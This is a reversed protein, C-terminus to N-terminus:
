RSDGALMGLYMELQEVGTIEMSEESDHDEEMEESAGFSGEAAGGEAEEVQHASRYSWRRSAVPHGARASESHYEFLWGGVFSANQAPLSKLLETAVRTDPRSPDNIALHVLRYLEPQPHLLDDARPSTSSALNSTTPPMLSVYLDGWNEEGDLAAPSALPWFEVVHEKHEKNNLINRRTTTSAECRFNCAGLSMESSERLLALDPDYGVYSGEHDEFCTVSWGGRSGFRPELSECFAEYEAWLEDSIGQGVRLSQFAAKEEDVCRRARGYNNEAQELTAMLSRIEQKLHIVARKDEKLADELETLGRGPAQPCSLLSNLTTPRPSTAETAARATQKWRNVVDLSKSQIFAVPHGDPDNSEISGDDDTDFDTEVDSRKDNIEASVVSTSDDFDVFIGPDDDDTEEDEAEISATPGHLEGLLDLGLIVDDDSGPGCHDSESM